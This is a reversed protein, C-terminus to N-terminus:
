QAALRCCRVIGGVDGESLASTQGAYLSGVRSLPAYRMGMIM